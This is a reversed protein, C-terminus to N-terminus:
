KTTMIIHNRKVQLLSFLTLFHSLKCINHGLNDSFKGKLKEKHLFANFGCFRGIKLLFFFVRKM